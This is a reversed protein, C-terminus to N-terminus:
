NSKRASISWGILLKLITIGTVAACLWSFIPGHSTFFTVRSCLQLVGISVGDTRAPLLGSM